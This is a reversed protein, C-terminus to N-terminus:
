GNFKALPNHSKRKGILRSRATLGYALLLYMDVFQPQRYQSWASGIILTELTMFILLTPKRGAIATSFYM